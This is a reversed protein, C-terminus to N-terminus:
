DEASRLLEGLDAIRARVESVERLVVDAEYSAAASDIREASASIADAALKVQDLELAELHSARAVIERAMRPLRQARDRVEATQEQELGRELAKFNADLALLTFEPAGRGEGTAPTPGRGNIVAGFHRETGHPYSAAPWSLAIAVALLPLARHM